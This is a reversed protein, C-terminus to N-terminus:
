GGVHPPPTQTLLAALILAGIVLGLELTIARYFIKELSHVGASVLQESKQLRPLIYFRSFGGLGFAGLVFCLKIILVKAYEPEIIIGSPGLYIMANFSGTMIITVVCLIAWVSFTEVIRSLFAALDTSELWHQSRRAIGRLPLLGGAWVAVATYHLWDTGALYYAQRAIAHGSLSGMLCLLCSVGFLLRGKRAIESRGVIMLFLLLLLKIGWILGFHTKFVVITIVPVIESLPRDSMMVSQHVLTLFHLILLYLLLMRLFPASRRDEEELMGSRTKLNIVAKISPLFTLQRFATAGVLLVVGIIDLWRFIAMQFLHSGNANM